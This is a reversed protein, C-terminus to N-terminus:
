RDHGNIHGAASDIERHILKRVLAVVEPRPLQVIEAGHAVAELDRATYAPASRERRRQLRASSPNRRVFDRRFLRVQEALM